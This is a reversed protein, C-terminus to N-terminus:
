NQKNLIYVLKSRALRACVIIGKEHKQPPKHIHYKNQQTPTPPSPPTQQLRCSPYHVGWPQYFPVEKETSQMAQANRLM